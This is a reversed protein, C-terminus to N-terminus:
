LGKLEMRYPGEHFEPHDEDKLKDPANRHGRLSDSKYTDGEMLNGDDDQADERPVRFSVTDKHPHRVIHEGEQKQPVFTVEVQSM